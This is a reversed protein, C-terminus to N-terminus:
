RLLEDMMRQFTVPAGQLRFPMVTFQFQGYPSSFATKVRDEAAVPM